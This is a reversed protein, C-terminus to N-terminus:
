SGWPVCRAAVAMIVHPVLLGTRKLGRKAVSHCELNRVTKVFSTMTAAAETLM